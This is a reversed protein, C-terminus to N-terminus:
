SRNQLQSPNKKLGLSMATVQGTCSTKRMGIIHRAPVALNRRVREADVRGGGPLFFTQGGGAVPRYPRLQTWLPLTPLHASLMSCHVPDWAMVTVTDMLCSKQCSYCLVVMMNNAIAAMSTSTPPALPLLAGQLSCSCRRICSRNVEQRLEWARAWWSLPPSM